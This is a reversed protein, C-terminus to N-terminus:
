IFFIPNKLLGSVPTNLSCDAYFPRINVTVKQIDEAAPFSYTRKAHLIRRILNAHDEEMLGLATSSDRVVQSESQSFGAVSAQQSPVSDHNARFFHSSTPSSHHQRHKGSHSSQSSGSSNNSAPAMSFHPLRSSSNLQSSADSSNGSTNQPHHSQHQNLAAGNHGGMSGSNSVNCNQASNSGGQNSHHRQAHQGASMPLSNSSSGSMKRDNHNQSSNTFSFASNSMDERNSNMTGSHMSSDNFNEPTRMGGSSSPSPSPSPFGGQFGGGNSPGM